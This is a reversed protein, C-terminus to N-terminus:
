NKKSLRSPASSRSSSSAKQQSSSGGTGTTSSSAKITESRKKSKEVTQLFRDREEENKDSPKKKVLVLVANHPSNSGTMTFGHANMFPRGLLLEWEGMSEAVCFRVTEFQAMGNRDDKVEIEVYHTPAYPGSGPTVYVTLHQKFIPREPFAYRRLFDKTVINDPSGTDYLVKEARFRGLHDKISIASTCFEPSAPDSTAPTYIEGDRSSGVSLSIQDSNYEDPFNNAAVGKTSPAMTSEDLITSPNRSLISDDNPNTSAQSTVEMGEGGFSRQNPNVLGAPLGISQGGVGALIITDAGKLQSPLVDEETPDAAPCTSQRFPRLKKWQESRFRILNGLTSLPRGNPQAGTAGEGSEVFFDSPGVAGTTLINDKLSVRRRGFCNLM